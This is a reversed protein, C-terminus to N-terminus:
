CWLAGLFVYSMIHSSRLLPSRGMGAVKEFKWHKAVVLKREALIWGVSKPRVSFRLGPRAQGGARTEKLNHEVGTVRQSGFRRKSKFWSASMTPLHSTLAVLGFWWSALPQSQSIYPFWLFVWRKRTGLRELCGLHNLNLHADRLGLERWSLGNKTPLM